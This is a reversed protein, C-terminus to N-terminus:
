ERGRYLVRSCFLWVHSAACVCLGDHDRHSLEGEHGVARERSWEKM